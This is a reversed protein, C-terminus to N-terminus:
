EVTSIIQKYKKNILYNDINFLIETLYNVTEYKMRELDGITYEKGIETFSFTGHALDNRRGRIEELCKGNKTTAYNTNVDFGYEHGLKSITKNDINGNSIKRKQFCRKVIDVALNNISVVFDHPNINNKLQKILVKKLETNLSDFTTNNVHMNNHIEEIANSISSEVLNYLMLILNSRLIKNLEKDSSTNLYTNLFTYYTEIEQVRAQFITKVTHM